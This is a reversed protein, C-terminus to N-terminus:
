ERKKLEFEHNDQSEAIRLLAEIHEPTFKESLPDRFPSGQTIMGMFQEVMRTPPRPSPKLPIDSELTSNPLSGPELESIDAEAKATRRKEESM